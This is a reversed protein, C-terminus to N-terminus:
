CPLLSRRTSGKRDRGIRGRHTRRKFTERLKGALDELAAAEWREVVATHTKLRFRQPALIPIRRIDHQGASPAVTFVEGGPTDPLKAITAHRCADVHTPRTSAAPM